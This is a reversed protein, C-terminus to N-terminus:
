TSRQVPKRLPLLACLTSRLAKRSTTTTDSMVGASPSLRAQMPRCISAKAAGINTTKIPSFPWNNGIKAMTSKSSALMSATTPQRLTKVLGSEDKELGVPYDNGWYFSMTMPTGAPLEVEPTELSSTSEEAYCGVVASTTGEFAYATSYDWETWSGDNTVRWGLPPFGNEFGESYPFTDITQDAIITFSWVPVNAAEGKDNYPVVKWNYTTGYECSPITYTTADGLDEGNILNSAAADSGVYLKYGTAFLAKTWELEVDKNYIDTAKDEPAVVSAVEPAGGMGYYKPLIACGLYFTSLSLTTETDFVVESYAWRLYCNDSDM